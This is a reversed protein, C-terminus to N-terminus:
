EAPVRILLASAQAAPMALALTALALMLGALLRDLVKM